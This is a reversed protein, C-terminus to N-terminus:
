RCVRDAVTGVEDHQGQDKPLTFCAAAGNPRNEIWLHGQHEQIISRSIALGMGLGSQKTTYFPQFAKEDLDPGFGPGNDIVELLIEGDEQSVAIHLCRQGLPTAQMAQIANQVLNLLVQQIKAVVVRVSVDEPLSLTLQVENHSLEHDCLSLVEGIVEGMEVETFPSQGPRLFNRLGRVIEGAKQAASEIAEVPEVLQERDIDQRHLMLKCSAAYNAIAALPQNIEHALGTALQGMSLVRSTHALQGSLEQSRKEAEERVKIERELADNAATLDATRAAVRDELLDVQDHITQTAPRLVLHGLALMLGIVSITALLGLYRLTTAQGQAEIEYMGVVKDMIPLYLAEHKLLTDIVSASRQGQLMMEAAAVMANFHPSLEAFAERIEPSSTKPLGISPDGNLLGAHASRWQDLTERLEPEIEEPQDSAQIVLAFKVLRQSLMRQRGAVNIQPAYISLRALLPQLVAQDIVLLLAVCLLISWYRRLLIATLDKASRQIQVPLSDTDLPM